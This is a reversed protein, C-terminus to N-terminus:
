AIKAGLEPPPSDDAIANLGSIEFASSGVATTIREMLDGQLHEPISALVVAQASKEGGAVWRHPLSPDFHISDGAVVTFPEGGVEADIVGDEVLIVM